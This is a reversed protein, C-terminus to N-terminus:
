GTTENQECWERYVDGAEELAFAPAASGLLEGARYEELVADFAADAADDLAALEADDALKAAEARCLERYAEGWALMSATSGDPEPLEPTFRDAAPDPLTECPPIAASPSGAADSAPTGVAYDADACSAFFICLFILVVAPIRPM